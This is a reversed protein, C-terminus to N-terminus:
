GSKKDPELFDFRGSDFVYTQRQHNDLLLKYFVMQRWYDGGNPDRDNPPNVKKLGNSPNGTKYDVVQVLNNEAREMKDIMGTVPVSEIEIHDFRQEIIIDRSQQKWLEINQDYN